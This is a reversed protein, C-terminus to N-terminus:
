HESEAELKSKLDSVAKQMIALTARHSADNPEEMAKREALKVAKLRYYLQENGEAETWAAEDVHEGAPEAAEDLAKVSGGSNAILERLEVEAQQTPTPLQDDVEEVRPLPDYHRYADNPKEDM